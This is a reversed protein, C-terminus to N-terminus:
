CGFSHERNCFVCGLFAPLNNAAAVPAKWYAWNDSHDNVEEMFDYLFQAARGSPTEPRYKRVAQEIDFSNMFNMSLSYCFLGAM